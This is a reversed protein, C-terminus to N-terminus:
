KNMNQLQGCAASIDQGQSLRVTAVFGAQMLKDHWNQIVMDSSSQLIGSAGLNLPILNIRVRGLKNALDILAKLHKDDDNLGDIMTYELGIFHSRSSNKKHYKKSWDVLFNFFGNPHSPIIKKRTEPVASHLSLAFRVAPFNKDELMEEMKSMVGVTSLTIHSLGIETNDLIINLADKVNEYNALPEGQGMLVVNSIRQDTGLYRQWFRLQDVIELATLNRTFGCSGTVCFLCGMACGVQTSVCVTHRIGKRKDESKDERKMLVTEITKGDSLKLLAKETADIKSVQKKLLEVTLWSIDKLRERLDKSLTTIEQYGNINLDFWAQYIQKLRFRPENNLIKNLKDSM